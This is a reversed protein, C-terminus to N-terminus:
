FTRSGQASHYLLTHAEFVLGGRYWLVPPDYGSRVPGAHDRWAAPRTWPVPGDLRTQYMDTPSPRSRITSTGRSRAPSSARPLGGQLCGLPLVITEKTLEWVFAVELLYCRHSISKLNAGPNGGPHTIVQDYQDQTIEGSQQRTRLQRLISFTDMNLLSGVGKTGPAATEEAGALEFEKNEDINV